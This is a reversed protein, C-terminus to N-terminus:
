IHLTNQIRVMLSIWIHTSPVTLYLKFQLNYSDPVSM